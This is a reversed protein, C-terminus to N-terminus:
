LINRHTKSQIPQKSQAFRETVTIVKIVSAGHKADQVLVIYANWVGDTLEEGLTRSIKFSAQQPANM